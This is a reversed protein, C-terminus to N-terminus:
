ATVQPSVSIARPSTWALSVAACAAKRRRKSAALACSASPYPEDDDHSAALAPMDLFPALTATRCIRWSPSRGSSPLARAAPSRVVQPVLGVAAIGRHLVASQDAQKVMVHADVAAAPLEDEM